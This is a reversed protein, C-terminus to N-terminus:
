WGRVIQRWQQRRDHDSHSYAYRRMAPTGNRSLSGERGHLSIQEPRCALQSPSSRGWHSFMAAENEIGNM